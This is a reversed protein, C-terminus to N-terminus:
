LSLVFGYIQRAYESENITFNDMRSALDFQYLEKFDLTTAELLLEMDETSYLFNKSGHLFLLGRLKEGPEKKVINLTNYDNNEIGEPLTMVANINKFKTKLATFDVFPEDAIIGAIDEKQYGRALSIGAGIGWGYAILEHHFTQECYNYVADFDDYFEKYIYQYKNIKFDSSEGFGRYDYIVVSFGYNVLIRVRELYDGINGVGDHSMVMLQDGLKSPFYWANLEAGNTSPIRLKEYTMHFDHPTRDYTRKPSLAFASTSLLCLLLLNLIRM